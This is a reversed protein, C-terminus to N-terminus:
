LGSGTLQSVRFGTNLGFENAKVGILSLEGLGFQWNKGTNKGSLYRSWHQVSPAGLWGHVTHQRLRWL